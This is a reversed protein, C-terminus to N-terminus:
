IMKYWADCFGYHKLDVFPYKESMKKIEDKLELFCDKDLLHKMNIIYGFIHENDVIGNQDKNLLKKEKSSLSPKTIFLRNYLRSNHACLNRIITMGHMYKELINISEAGKNINMILAIEKKLESQSIKYLKSIDSITFLDVYAWLPIEEKLEIIFHKLFAEHSLNDEAQKNAKNIISIHEIPDTFNRSDKYGFPGYKKSFLYSFISKFKVEIIEIYKLLLHRFEMDLFYIDQINKLSINKYFVNHDRLTLSYGSVRYYNNNLLFSKADEKNEVILGRSCLIEIQEDITKFDKPM